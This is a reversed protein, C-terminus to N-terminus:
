LMERLDTDSTNLIIEKLIKWCDDINELSGSVMGKDVAMKAYQYIVAQVIGVDQWSLKNLFEESTIEPNQKIESVAIWKLREKDDEINVLISKKEPQIIEPTDIVSDIQQIKETILPIPDIDESEIIIIDNIDVLGERQCCFRCEIGWARSIIKYTIDM